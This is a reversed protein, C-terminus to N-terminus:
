YFEVSYDTFKGDTYNFKASFFKDQFLWPIFHKDGDWLNLELLKDDPIWELHGEPSDILEGDFDKMVFLFVYWDDVKDFLPFTIFGKMQPNRVNLGTEEKIERIACEEPSEGLEFERQFGPGGVIGAGNVAAIVVEGVGQLKGLDVQRGQPVLEEAELAVVALAAVGEVVQELFGLIVRRAAESVAPLADQAPEIVGADGREDFGDAGLDVDEIRAGGPRGRLGFRCERRTRARGSRGTGTGPQFAALRGRLFWPRTPPTIGVKEFPSRRALRRCEGCELRQALEFAPAPAHDRLTQLSRGARARTWCGPNTLPNLLVYTSRNDTLTYEKSKHL